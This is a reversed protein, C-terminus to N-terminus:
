LYKEKNRNHEELTKSFITKGDKATLYYWYDSKKPFVAAKIALFGPNSIAGIPLGEYLYTNYASKIKLDEVLPPEIKCNAPEIVCKAYVVSADIQLAIHKDFRKWLIGSVIEMDEVNKVEKEILSAMIIIEYLSKGSQYISYSLKRIIKNEFNDLFKEIILQSAANKDFIYTDPFLFGELNKPCGYIGTKDCNLFIYKESFNKPEFVLNLFDSKKVLGNNELKEAIQYINYGEPITISIENRLVEGATLMKVIESFKINPNFIYTGAQFQKEKGILLAYIEFAFSSKIVENTKLEDAIKILGWGSKIEVIKPTKLSGSSFYIFYLGLLYFFLFLFAFVIIINMKLWYLLKM